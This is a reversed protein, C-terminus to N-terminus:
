SSNVEKKSCEKKVRGSVLVDSLSGATHQNNPSTSTHRDRKGARRPCSSLHIRGLKREGGQVLLLEVSTPYIQKSNIQSQTMWVMLDGSTFMKPTLLAM